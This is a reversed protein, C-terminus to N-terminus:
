IREALSLDGGYVRVFLSAAERRVRSARAGPLLMILEVVVYIDGVPTSRQGRGQFELHGIKEVVDPFKDMIIRIQEGAYDIRERSWVRLM